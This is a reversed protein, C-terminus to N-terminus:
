SSESVESLQKLEDIFRQLESSLQTILSQCELQQKASKEISQCLEAVIMGGLNASGSKFKHAHKRLQQWDQQESAQQLQELM